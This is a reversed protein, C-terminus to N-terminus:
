PASWLVDGESDLVGLEPEGGKMGLWTRMNQNADNIVLSTGHDATALAGRVEERPDYLVLGTGSTM